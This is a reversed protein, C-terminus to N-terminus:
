ILEGINVCIKKWLGLVNPNLLILFPNTLNVIRSPSCHPVSDTTM